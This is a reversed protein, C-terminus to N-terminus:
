KIRKALEIYLTQVISQFIYARIEEGAAPENISKLYADVVHSAEHAILGISVHLKSHNIQIVCTLKDKLSFITCKGGSKPFSEKACGLYKTVRDLDKQSLCLCIYPGRLLERFLWNTKM